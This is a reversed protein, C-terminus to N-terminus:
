KEEVRQNWQQANIFKHSVTSRRSYQPLTPASCPCHNFQNIRKTGYLLHPSSSGQASNRWARM